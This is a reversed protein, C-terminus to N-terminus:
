TREKGDEDEEEVRDIGINQIRRDPALDPKLVIGEDEVGSRVRRAHDRIRDGRMNVIKLKRFVIAAWLLERLMPLWSKMARRDDFILVARGYEITRRGIGQGVVDDRIVRLRLDLFLAGESREVARDGVPAELNLTGGRRWVM